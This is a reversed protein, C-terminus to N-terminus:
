PREFMSNWELLNIKVAMINVKIKSTGYRITSDLFQGINSNNKHYACFLFHGSYWKHNLLIWCNVHKVCSSADRHLCVFEFDLVKIRGVVFGFINTLLFNQYWGIHSSCRACFCRKWLYGPFWSDQSKWRQLLNILFTTLRWFFFYVVYKLCQPAKTFKFYLVPPIDQM